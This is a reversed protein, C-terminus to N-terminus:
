NIIKRFFDNMNKKAISDRVSEEPFPMQYTREKLRNTIREDYQLKDLRSNSTFITIKRDIYRSNIIHYFKENIWPKDSQETGFDDIVLVDATCLFDLLKSETYGSDRKEWSAKIEILIQLSTCFKVQVGKEFMLENAISAVMRTTGSGKTNAYFYLGMGNEKMEDFSNLWYDTAKLVTEIRKQSEALTYSDKDFNELRVDSFAAPLSAFAKRHRMIDLQYAGCSCERAFCLGNEDFYVERGTGHCRPCDSKQQQEEGHEESSNRLTNM